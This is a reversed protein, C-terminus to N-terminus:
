GVAVGYERALAEIAKWTEDEVEIGDRRRPAPFPEADAGPAPQSGPTLGGTFPRM